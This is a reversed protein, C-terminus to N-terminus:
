SLRTESTLVGRGEGINGGHPKPAGGLSALVAKNNTTLADMIELDKPDFIKPM